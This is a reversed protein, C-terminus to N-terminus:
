QHFVFTCYTKQPGQLGNHVIYLNPYEAPAVFVNISEGNLLYCPPKVGVPENTQFDTIQGVLSADRFGEVTVNQIYQLEVLQGNWYGTYSFQSPDVQAILSNIKANEQSYASQNGFTAVFLISLLFISSLILILLKFRM